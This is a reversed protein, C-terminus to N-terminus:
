PTPACEGANIEALAQRGRAIEYANFARRVADNGNNYTAGMFANRGEIMRKFALDAASNNKTARQVATWADCVATWAGLVSM